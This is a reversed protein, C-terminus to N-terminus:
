HNKNWAIYFSRAVIVIPIALLAGSVSFLTGGILISLISTLPSIGVNSKMVKPVILTNELQQILICAVTMGAAGTWGLSFFAILSAIITTITPGINPIIEMMGALIALPLAYPIGIIIAAIFTLAGIITMLIAQGRLWNGLQEDVEVFFDKLIRVHTRNKALHSAQEMLKPRDLTMYLSIILTTIAVFVGTFTSGILSFAKSISSGFTDFLKTLGNLDLQFGFFSNQDLSSDLTSILVVTENILPPVVFSLFSAIIIVFLFYILGASPGRRWGYKFQLRNIAKNLGVSIIYAVFLIFIISKIKNLIFLSLAFIFTFIVISPSIKVNIEQKNSSFPSKSQDQAM